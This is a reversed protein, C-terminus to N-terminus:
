LSLGPFNRSVWKRFALEGQILIQDRTSPDFLSLSKAQRVRELLVKVKGQVWGVSSASDYGYAEAFRLYLAHDVEGSSQLRADLEANWKVADDMAQKDQM